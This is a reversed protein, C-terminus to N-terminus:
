RTGAARGLSKGSGEQGEGCGRLALTTLRHEATLFGLSPPDASHGDEEM